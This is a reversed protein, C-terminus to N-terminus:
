AKVEATEDAAILTTALGALVMYERLPVAVTVASIVEPATTAHPYAENYMQGIQVIHPLMHRAMTKLKDLQEAYDPKAAAEKADSM